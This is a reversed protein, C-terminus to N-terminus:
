CMFVYDYFCLSGSCVQVAAVRHVREDCRGQQVRQVCPLGQHGEAPHAAHPQLLRPGRVGVVRPTFFRFCKYIM